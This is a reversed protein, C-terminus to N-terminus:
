NTSQRYICCRNRGSRKAKYLAQDSRRYIDAIDHDEHHLSSVGACLYIHEQQDFFPQEAFRQRIQEALVFATEVDTNELVIIFEEGGVRGCFHHESIVHHFLRALFCLVEDGKDHGFQDNILKFNDIDISICSLPQKSNKARTFASRFDAWLKRRNCLQTLSDTNALQYLQERLEVIDTIDTSVGILGIVEGTLRHLIPHKVARYVRVLGNSKATAREEHIVSSRTEFVHQDAALIDSLQDDFFFDHDTKGILSSEDTNFLELTLPNAYLYEGRRNKVFVYVGLENLVIEHLTFQQNDFLEEISNLEIM